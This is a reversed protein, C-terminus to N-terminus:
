LGRRTERKASRPAAAAPRVSQAATAAVSPGDVEVEQTGCVKAYYTRRDALSEVTVLDGLGGQERARGTTRVQVGPGRAFVTVADGRRVLVANRVTQADLVEGAAVARTAEKGVVEEIRGFPEGVRAAPPRAELRVDAARIVAGRAVSEAAVVIASPLTVRVQISFRAPGDPSDLSIVFQQPGIWPPTGGEVSLARRSASVLRAQEDDLELEVSWAGGSSAQQDLYRVLADQVMRTARMVVPTSPRQLAPKEKVESAGHVTVPSAGSFSHAALNVGRMALLDQLERVRVFRKDGAPPTPFLEIAALAKAEERKASLIEAVDGLVVLSGQPRCETRLRLEAGRGSHAVAGTLLLALVLLINRSETM